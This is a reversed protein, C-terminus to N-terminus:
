LPIPILYLPIGDELAKDTHSRHCSEGRRCVGTDRFGSESSHNLRMGTRFAPYTADDHM